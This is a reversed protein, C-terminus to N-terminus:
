LTDGKWHLAFVLTFLRRATEFDLAFKGNLRSLLLEAADNHLGRRGMDIAELRSLSGSKVANDYSECLLTYDRLIRRFPTLSLHHTVIPRKDDDYVAFYLRGEVIGVCLIYPGGDYGCVTFHNDVLLDSIAAIRESEQEPKAKAFGVGELTVSVLRERQAKASM